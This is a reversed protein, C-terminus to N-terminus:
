SSFWLTWQSVTESVPTFKGQLYWATVLRALACAIILLLASMLYLGFAQPPDPKMVLPVGHYLVAASLLIGVAWGAWPTIRFADIVRLAFMPSLGYAVVTFTQTITHRGHFTEGLAKIMWAGVFVILVSLVLQAAEYAVAERVAFTKVWVVNGSGRSEGWKTLGYGEVASSLLLLPLLFTLMVAMISRQTQIVKNWTNVCDFVLMLAKIMLRSQYRGFTQM